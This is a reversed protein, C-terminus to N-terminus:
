PTAEQKAAALGNEIRELVEDASFDDSASVIAKVEELVVVAALLKRRFEERENLFRTKEAMHLEIREHQCLYCPQGNIVWGHGKNCLHHGGIRGDEGGQQSTFHHRVNLAVIASVTKEISEGEHALLWALDKEYQYPGNHRLAETATAEPKSPLAALQARLADYDELRRPSPSGPKGKDEPFEHSCLWAYEDDTILDEQHLRARCNRVLDFLRRHTNIPQKKRAEKVEQKAAALKAEAREARELAAGYAGVISLGEDSKTAISRLTANAGALTRAEELERELTRAFDAPVYESKGTGWDSLDANDIRAEETRPTDNTPTM